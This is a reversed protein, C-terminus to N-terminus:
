AKEGINATLVGIGDVEVEVLDGAHLEGVGEPTGTIVVDGPELTMFQSVYHIVFAVDFIMKDTTGDQRTEGNVRTQVRTKQPELNTELHPGFPLFKDSGKARFWQLDTKQKDRATLDLACTWGLVHSLADEISVKSARSKIVLGLEGEFHFSETWSPYPVTNGSFTLANAAKFFLGPESLPKNGLEEIHAVYNRGVCVIKSPDAPALLKVSSLSVKAGHHELNPFTVPQITDGELIGWNISSNESQYRVIKMTGL